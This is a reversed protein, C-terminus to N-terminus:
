KSVASDTVSTDANLAMSMGNMMAVLMFKLSYPDGVVKLWSKAAGVADKAINVVGDAVSKVKTSIGTM